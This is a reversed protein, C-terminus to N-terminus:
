QNIWIPSAKSKLLIVCSLVNNVGPDWHVFGLNFAELDTAQHQTAPMAAPDSQGFCAQRETWLGHQAADHAFEGFDNRRNDDDCGFVM